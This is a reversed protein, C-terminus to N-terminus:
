RVRESLMGLETIADVVIAVLFPLLVSGKHM